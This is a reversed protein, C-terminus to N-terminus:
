CVRHHPPRWPVGLIEFIRKESRGEMPMLAGETMRERNKGHAVYKFLEHRNLRMGKKSALLRISRNFIDNGTFYILAAGMEEWSVLLLDVRRWVSSNPLACAGHWETRNDKRTTALAVKLFGQATLRPILTKLVFTRIYNISTNSKTIILDIDGSDAAGRRYSGMISVEFDPEFKDIADRVFKGHREVQLDDLMKFGQNVWQSAQSPGVGYIKLFQQLAEDSPELRVNELRRLKNTWAIEEIKAALREGVHPLLVAEKALVKCTHKSLSSIAKRYAGARWQDQIQDYYKLMEQLVEITRANPSETSNQGDHKQM